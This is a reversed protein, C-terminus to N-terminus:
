RFACKNIVLGVMVRKLNRPFFCGRRECDKAEVGLRGEALICIM